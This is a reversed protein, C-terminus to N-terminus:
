RVRMPVEGGNRARPVVPAVLEEVLDLAETVGGVVHCLDTRRVFGREALGDVLALFPGWDGVVDILVLPGVDLGLAAMSLVEVVEDITGYGGPLAIFADSGDIMRRKRDLLDRTLVLEQSPLEDSMERARLFEPVVGLIEGGEAAAGRAVAGMVGIGGAGYVLRHGREALLRGLEHGLQLYRPSNGTSAGCFIGVSLKAM